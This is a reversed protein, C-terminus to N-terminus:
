RVTLPLYNYYRVITTTTVEATDYISTDLQSTIKLTTVDFEGHIVGGPIEVLVTVSISEGAALLGTNDGGPLTSTWVGLVALAYTDTYDGTNTVTFEYAIVDLPKGSGDEPAIVEGGPNVNALTTGTAIDYGGVVGNAELTFTDDGIIVEPMNPISVTVTVLKSAWADLVGTTTPADTPWLADVNLFVEQAEAAENTVTYVYSVQTGPEGIQEQTPPDISVDIPPECSGMFDVVRQLVTEGNASNNNYLAVWSTGFFVTQWMGGNKDLNLKNANNNARFATSAGAGANVIDGYDSFGSPYTLNYPGLGDGIPDGALGVISTADGTDSAFSSIGLYNQGFTTLGFDFLYDQSDLFLKGGGDLYDALNQEDESGPGAVGGYADGSYWVVMSYGQMSELSPGDGGGTDYIDYDYGLTDLATTFYPTNNPANNDDDVLLICPLPELLFNEIMNGDVVVVRTESQHLAATVLMEWSGQAVSISYYGNIDTTVPDEAADTFRITADLPDGSVADYVYGSVTYRPLPTMDFNRTTVTDTIVEVPYAVNTEYGYASATVTYTGEAVTMTYYGSADTLVDWYFGQEHQALINVDAIPDNTTADNVTGDIKGAGGMAIAYQVAALADITGVGWDNNPGTTYNGGCNSGGQGTLPVATERIIDITQTVQGRLAPNASWILGVLATVHPGSMSTGSWGGEYGGGPVSSRINEGPAMVDPFYDGPYLSSPGRSSFGTLLGPFAPVHNVSGTTLVQLYDGPSRLSGCGSGENGASVEVLIGAAQLAAIEDEFQPAGGGWYGWSNNVADPAMGPDPNAGSLDWPALDWQFCETFTGDDGGGGDTMNKCHVTRAGPAMGIQNAGGDDGVMTGTTHTGHGHGDGPVNPYTNTADWWNYNHNVQSCTPPNLCGRYQQVLAPHNWYLGTDNGAMVTGQGDYGIAWVEPANVFSINSEIGAPNNQAKPDFMPEELQYVHNASIRGVDQRNAIAMALDLNGARVLIKNAIYFSQYEVDQKDLYARLEAQTRDVTAMLTEFVYQGKEEKTLLQDAYSLDAKDVMTVFFDAKGSNLQDLIFAEFKTSAEVQPREAKVLISGSTMWGIMMGAILLISFLRHFHKM